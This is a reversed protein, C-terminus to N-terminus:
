ANRKWGFLLSYMMGGALKATFQGFLIDPDPPWGFALSPFVLSDVFSSGLNSVNVRRWRAWKHGAAYILRDVISALCFAGFSALGIRGANRNLIWSIASGTAILIAMKWWLGKRQWTDHLSDMVTFDLGILFFATVKSWQPGFRSVILNAATIAVLYILVNRAHTSWITQGLRSRKRRATLVHEHEM